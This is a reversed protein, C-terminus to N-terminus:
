RFMEERDESHYIGFCDPLLRKKLFDRVCCRTPPLPLPLSAERAEVGVTLSSSPLPLGAGGGSGSGEGGGGCGGGWDGGFRGSSGGRNSGSASLAASSRARCSFASIKSCAKFSLTSLEDSFDLVPVGSLYLVGFRNTAGMM